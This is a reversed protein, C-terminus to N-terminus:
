RPSRVFGHLVFNADQYYGVIQGHDNIDKSFTGGNGAGPIDFTEINGNATRLFGHNIGDVTAYFGTIQGKLNIAM